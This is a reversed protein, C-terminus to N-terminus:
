PASPSLSVPVGVPALGTIPDDVSARAAHSEVYSPVSPSVPRSPRPLLAGVVLAAAVAAAAGAAAHRLARRGSRHRPASRGGAEVGLAVAEWFGPPAEPWPASRVARRVADTAALADGWGPSTALRAELDRREDPTAEGDLYASVLEEGDLGGAGPGSRSGPGTIGSM